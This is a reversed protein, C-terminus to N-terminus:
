GRRRDRAPLPPMGDRPGGAKADAADSEERGDERGLAGSRRPGRREARAARGAQAEKAKALGWLRATSAQAVLIEAMGRQMEGLRPLLREAVDATFDTLAPKCAFPGRGVIRDVVFVHTRLLIFGNLAVMEAFLLRAFAEPDTRARVECAALIHKFVEDIPFGSWPKSRIERLLAEVNGERAWAARIESPRPGPPRQYLDNDATKVMTM